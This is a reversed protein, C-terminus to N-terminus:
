ASRRRARAAKSKQALEQFYDSETIEAVETRRKVEDIQISLVEVQQHLEQERHMVEGAMQGFVRSLEAIEDHGTTQALSAAQGSSLQADVMQRAASTLRMLPKSFHQAALTANVVAFLATL